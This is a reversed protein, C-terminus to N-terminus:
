QSKPQILVRDGSYADIAMIFGYDSSYLLNNKEKYAVRSNKLLLGRGVTKSSLVTMKKEKDMLVLEPYFDEGLIM